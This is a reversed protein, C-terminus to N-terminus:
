MLFFYYIIGYIVSATVGYVIVPGAIVFMKAAVGNIFGESKAEIAPAAVANAFGSIPVLTGAGSFKAINDFVGVGTLLGAIFVISITSLLKATPLDIHLYVNYLKLFAHALVCIGGGVVFAKLLNFFTCSRKSRETAVKKYKEKTMYQRGFKKTIIQSFVSFICIKEDFIYVYFAYIMSYNVFKVFFLNYVFFNMKAISM